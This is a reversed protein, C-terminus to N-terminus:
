TQVRVRHTKEMIGLGMPGHVTRIGSANRVVTRVVATTPWWTVELVDNYAFGMRELVDRLPSSIDVREPTYPVDPVGKPLSVSLGM